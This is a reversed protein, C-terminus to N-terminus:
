TDYIQQRGRYRCKQQAFFNIQVMKRSEMYIHDYIINTKGQSIETQMSTMLDIGLEYENYIHIMDEKNMGRNISM